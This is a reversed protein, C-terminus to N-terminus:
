STGLMDEIDRIFKLIGYELNKILAESDCFDPTNTLDYELISDRGALTLPMRYKSKQNKKFLQWYKKQVQKNVGSLWVEFRISEHIFVIAIKLKRSRLAPPVVAFCTMDMFGQYISGSVSFDPHERSFYKRMQMMLDM